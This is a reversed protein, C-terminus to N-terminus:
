CKREAQDEEEMQIQAARARLQRLFDAMIAAEEAPSQPPGSRRAVCPGAAACRRERRCARQECRRWLENMDALRHALQRRIAELDREPKPAPEQM